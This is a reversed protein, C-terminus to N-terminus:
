LCDDLADQKTKVKEYETKAIIMNDRLRELVRIQYDINTLWEDDLLSLINLLTTKGEGSRGYIGIMGTSPFVVNINTFLNLDKFSKSVNKLEIM